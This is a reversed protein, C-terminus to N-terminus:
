ALVAANEVNLRSFIEEEAGDFAKSSTKSKTQLPFETRRQLHM